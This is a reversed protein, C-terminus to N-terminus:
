VKATDYYRLVHASAQYGASQPLLGEPPVAAAVAQPARPLMAATAAMAGAVGAGAFVVRRSVSSSSKEKM